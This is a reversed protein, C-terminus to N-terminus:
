VGQILLISSFHIVSILNKIMCRPDIYKPDIFHFLALTVFDSKKIMCRPAILHFLASDGFDSLIISEWSIIQCM